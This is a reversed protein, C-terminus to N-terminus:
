GLMTMQDRASVYDQQAQKGTEEMLTGQYAILAQIAKVYDAQAADLKTVLLERAAEGKGDAVLRLFEEQFVRYKERADLMTRLAEKGHATTIRQELKEINAKIGAKAADIAAMERQTVQPDNFLAINRMGVAIQNIDGILGYSWVVKPYKDTVMEDAGASVHGLSRVGLLVVAALLLSVVGFALALRTSIKLNSFM